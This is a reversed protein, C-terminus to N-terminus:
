ATKVHIRSTFESKNIKQKNTQKNEPMVTATACFTLMAWSFNNYRAKYLKVNETHLTLQQHCTTKIVFASLWCKQLHDHRNESSNITNCKCALREGIVNM